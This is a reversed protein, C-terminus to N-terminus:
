HRWAPQAGPPDALLESLWAGVLWGCTLLFLGALMGAAVSFAAGLLRLLLWRAHLDLRLVLPWLGPSAAAARWTDLAVLAAVGCILAVIWLLPVDYSCGQCGCQPALGLAAALCASFCCQLRMGARLFAALLAAGLVCGALLALAAAMWSAAAMALSPAAKPGALLQRLRVSALATAAARCAATPLLREAAHLAWGPSHQQTSGLPCCRSSGAALREERLARSATSM